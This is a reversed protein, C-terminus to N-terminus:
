CLEVSVSKGPDSRLEGTIEVKETKPSGYPSESLLDQYIEFPSDSKRGRFSFSQPLRDLLNARRFPNGIEYYMHM